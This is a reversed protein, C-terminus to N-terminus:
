RKKDRISPRGQVREESYRWWFGFEERTDIDSVLEVRESLSSSTNASNIFALVEEDADEIDNLELNNQIADTVYDILHAEMDRRTSFVAVDTDGSDPFEFVLVWVLSNPVARSASGKRAHNLGALAVAAGLALPVGSM